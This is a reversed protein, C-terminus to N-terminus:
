KKLTYKINDIVLWKITRHDVQRYGQSPVDIVTSRGLKGETKSLRCVLISEKGTLCEKALAKAAARDGTPAKALASLTEKISKDSPKCSFCVQVITANAMTLREALETSTISEESDWVNANYMEDRMINKDISVGRNDM